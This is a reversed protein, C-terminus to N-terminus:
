KLTNYDHYTRCKEELLQFDVCMDHIFPVKGSLQLHYIKSAKEIVRKKIPRLFNLEESLRQYNYLNNKRVVELDIRTYDVDMVPIMNNFRVVGLIHSSDHPLTDQFVKLTLQTSPKRKSNHTTLPAFYKFEDIVLLIGLYPRHGKNVRVRSDFSHLYKIYRDDITVFEFLLDSM